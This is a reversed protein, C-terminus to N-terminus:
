PRHVVGLRNRSFKWFSLFVCFFSPFAQL